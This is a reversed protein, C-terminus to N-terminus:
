STIKKRRFLIPIWYIIGYLAGCILLLKLLNQGIAIDAFSRNAMTPTKMDQSFIFNDDGCYFCRLYFYRFDTVIGPMANRNM